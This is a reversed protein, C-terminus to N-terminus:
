KAEENWTKENVGPIDLRGCVFAYEKYSKIKDQLIDAAVVVHEPKRDKKPDTYHMLHFIIVQRFKNEDM